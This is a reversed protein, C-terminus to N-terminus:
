LLTECYCTIMIPKGKLQKHAVVRKLNEEININGKISASFPSTCKDYLAITSVKPLTSIKKLLESQTSFAWIQGEKQGGLEFIINPKEYTGINRVLVGYDTALPMNIVIQQRGKGEFVWLLLKGKADRQGRKPFSKVM